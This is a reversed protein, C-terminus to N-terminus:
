LRRRNSQFYSHISKKCQVIDKAPSRFAWAVKDRLNILCSATTLLIKLDNKSQTRKNADVAIAPNTIEVHSALEKRQNHKLSLNFGRGGFCTFDGRLGLTLSCCQTQFLSLRFYFELFSLQLSCCLFLPTVIEVFLRKWNIYLLLTAVSLQVM